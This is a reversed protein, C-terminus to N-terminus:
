TWHNTMVYLRTPGPLPERQNARCIQTRCQSQSTQDSGNTTKVLDQSLTIPIVDYGTIPHPTLPQLVTQHQPLVSQKTIDTTVHRAGGPQPILQPGALSDLAEQGSVAGACLCIGVYTITM